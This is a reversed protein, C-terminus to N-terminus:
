PAETSTVSASMSLASARTSGVPRSSASSESIMRGASAGSRSASDRRMAACSRVIRLKSAKASAARCTDKAAVRSAPPRSSGRGSSRRGPGMWSSSRRSLGPSTDLGIAIGSASTTKWSRASRSTSSGGSGGCAM